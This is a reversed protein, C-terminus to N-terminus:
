AIRRLKTVTERLRATTTDYLTAHQVATPLLRSDHCRAGCAGLSLADKGRELHGRNDGNRRHEHRTGYVAHLRGRPERKQHHYKAYPEEKGAVLRRTRRKPLDHGGCRERSQRRGPADEKRGDRVDLGDRGYGDHSPGRQASALAEHHARKSRQYRVEEKALAHPRRPLHIRPPEHAVKTAHQPLVAEELPAARQVHVPKERREHVPRDEVAPVHNAVDLGDGPRGDNRRVRRAQRPVAQM